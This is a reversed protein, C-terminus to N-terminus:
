ACLRTVLARGRGRFGCMGAGGSAREVEIDEPVRGAALAHM